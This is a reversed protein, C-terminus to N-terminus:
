LMTINNLTEPYILDLIQTGSSTAVSNTKYHLANDHTNLAYSSIKLQKMALLECRFSFM